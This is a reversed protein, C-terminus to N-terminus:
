SLLLLRKAALSVLDLQELCKLSTWSNLLEEHLVEENKDDAARQVMLYVFLDTIFNNIVIEIQDTLILHLQLM